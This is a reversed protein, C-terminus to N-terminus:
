VSQNFDYPLMGCSHRFDSSQLLLAPVSRLIKVVLYVTFVYFRQADRRLERRSSFCDAMAALFVTATSARSSSHIGTSKRLLRFCKVM